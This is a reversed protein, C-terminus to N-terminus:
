GLVVAEKRSIEMEGYINRQCVCVRQQSLLELLTVFTLVIDYIEGDCSVLEEFSLTRKESLLSCIEEAKEEMSMRERAAYEYRRRVDGIQKKREIFSRFVRIFQDASVDLLEEPQGTYPSLDEAPKVFIREGEEERTRLYEALSKYKRYERVRETLEERLEEEGANRGGDGASPLRMRSKIQLLTAALVMFEAAAEPKIYKGSRVHEMYQDTIESINVDCVDMGSQEVLYVLLDFPGEFVDLRVQYSM